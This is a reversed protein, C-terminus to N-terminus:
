KNEKNQNEKIITLFEQLNGTFSQYGIHTLTIDSYCYIELGCKKALTCFGYDESLLYQTEKDIIIPFLNFFKNTETSYGDINNKYAIDTNNNIIINLAEKKILMFGTPLLDAKYINEKDSLSIQGNITFDVPYISNNPKSYKKPYAGSIIDKDAELLKLVDKPDFIIDCDIFLLHTALKNDLFRSAAANRGRPILSEFAIPEISIDFNNKKLLIVLEIIKLMYFVNVQQNYAIIPLYIHPTTQSSIM